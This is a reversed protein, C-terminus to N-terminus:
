KKKKPAPQAPTPDKGILIANALATARQQIGNDDPKTIMTLCASLANSVVKEDLGMDEAVLASIPKNLLQLTFKSPQLKQSEADEKDKQAKARLNVKDAQTSLLIECFDATYSKTLSLAAVFATARAVSAVAAEDPQVSGQAIQMSSQLVLDPNRAADRAQELSSLNKKAAALQKQAGDLDDQSKKLDAAFQQKQPDTSGEPPNDVKAQNAAVQKQLTDVTDGLETVKADQADVDDQLKLLAEGSLVQASGGIAVAPPRVAGTLQEIALVSTLDSQYRRLLTQYEAPSIAGSAYAECLRYGADRLTQITQTRLGLSAGTENLAQRLSATAKGTIDLSGAASSALVSFADPSPEACVIPGVVRGNKDKGVAFIARQKADQSIVYSKAGAEEGTWNKESYIERERFISNVRACGSLAPAGLAILMAAVM